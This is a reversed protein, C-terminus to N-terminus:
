VLDGHGIALQRGVLFNKYFALFAVRFIRRSIIRISSIISDSFYEMADECALDIESGPAVASM